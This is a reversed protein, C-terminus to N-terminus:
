AEPSQTQTDATNLSDKRIDTELNNEKIEIGAKSDPANQGKVSTLVDEESLSAQLLMDLEDDTMGDYFVIDEEASSPNASHGSQPASPHTSHNATM